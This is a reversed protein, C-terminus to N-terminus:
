PRKCTKGEYEFRHLRYERGNWRWIPLCFGPGIILIDPWNGIGKTALFEPRGLQDFTRKWSGNAHKSVLWFRMGNRGFCIAGGEMVVAEPRGDGNVDKYAKISGPSYSATEAGDCKGSKWSKGRQVFGAAKFIAAQEARSQAAVPSAALLSVAAVALCFQRHM